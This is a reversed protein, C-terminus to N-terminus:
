RGEETPNKLRLVELVLDEPRQFVFVRGLDSGGTVRFLVRARTESWDLIEIDRRPFKLELQRQVGALEKDHWSTTPRDATKREGVIERKYWDFVHPPGPPVAWDGGFERVTGTRIDVLHQRPMSYGGHTRIVLQERDGPYFGLVDLHPMKWRLPENRTAQLEQTTRLLDALTRRADSPTEQFQSADVVVGRNRGDANMAFVPSVITPGDPNPIARGTEDVLPPLPVVREAPAFVLRSPTAWRLFRLYMPQSAGRM